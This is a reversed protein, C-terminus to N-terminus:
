ILSSLCCRRIRSLFRWKFFTNSSSWVKDRKNWKTWNTLHQCNKRSNFELLSYWIETFCFYLQQRTIANEVLRSIQCKWTTTTCHHCLFTCFLTIYTCFQQKALRFRNSKQRERQRRRQRQKLRNKVPACAYAYACACTYALSSQTSMLMLVLFVSLNTIRTSISIDYSQSTFVPDVYACAYACPLPGIMLWKSGSRMRFLLLLIASAEDVMKNIMPNLLAPISFQTLYAMRRTRIDKHKHKHALSFWGKLERNSRKPFSTPSVLASIGYHHRTVLWIQTFSWIPRPSIPKLWDSASALDPYHWTMLISNRCDIELRCKAPFGTTADRFTPQKGLCSHHDIDPDTISAWVDSLALFAM